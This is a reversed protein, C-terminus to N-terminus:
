VEPPLEEVPPILQAVPYEVEIGVMARYQEIKVPDEVFQEERTQNEAVFIGALAMREKILEPDSIDPWMKMPQYAYAPYSSPDQSKTTDSAYSALLSCSDEDFGVIKMKIYEM